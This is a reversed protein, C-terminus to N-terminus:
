KQIGASGQRWFTLTHGDSQYPKSTEKAETTVGDGALFFFSQPDVPMAHKWTRDCKVCKTTLTTDIGGVTREIFNRLRGRTGSDFKRFTNADMHDIARFGDYEQIQLLLERTARQSAYDRGILELAPRDKATLPSVVVSVTGYSWEAEPLANGDRDFPRPADELKLFYQAKGRYEEPQQNVKLSGLKISYDAMEGCHPCTLTFSYRDDVGWGRLEILLQHFDAELFNEKFEKEIYKRDKEGNFAVTCQTVIHALVAAGGNKNAKKDLLYDEEEGGLKRVTVTDIFKGNSDTFGNLLHIDTTRM